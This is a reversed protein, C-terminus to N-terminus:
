LEALLVYCYIVQLLMRINMSCYRAWSGDYFSRGVTLQFLYLFGYGIHLSHFVRFSNIELPFSEMFYAGDCIRTSFSFHRNGNMFQFSDRASLWECIFYNDGFSDWWTYLGDMLVPGLYLVLYGVCFLSLSMTLPQKNWLM